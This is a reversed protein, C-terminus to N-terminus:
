FNQAACIASYKDLNVKVPPGYTTKIIGKMFYRGKISEPKKEVLAMMLADFNEALQEPTFNRLGLKSMVFAEKSIRFEILGQKSQKVQELLQDQQVLTGSKTNPMLGLPGLVRAFKKLSQVFDPTCIIKDYNIVGKAFDALVNEDGLGDAGIAKLDEHFEDDAFVCVKVEKGTGAPLICTGRIMQDGKTPDVNLRVQLEVTEVFKTVEKSRQQM